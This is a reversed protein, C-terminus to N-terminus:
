ILVIIVVACIKAALIPRKEKDQWHERFRKGSGKFAGVAILHCIYGAAAVL